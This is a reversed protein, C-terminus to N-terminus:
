DLEKIRRMISNYVRPNAARLTDILDDIIELVDLMDKGAIASLFDSNGSITASASFSMAPVTRGAARTSYEFAQQDEQEIENRKARDQVAYLYSLKQVNSMTTASHELEAIAKEIEDMDLM